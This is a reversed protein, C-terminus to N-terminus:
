ERHETNTLGRHRLIADLEANVEKTQELAEPDQNTDSHGARNARRRHARVLLQLTDNDTEPHIGYNMMLTDVPSRTITVQGNLVAAHLQRYLGEWQKAAEGNKTALEQANTLKDELVRVRLALGGLLEEQTSAEM